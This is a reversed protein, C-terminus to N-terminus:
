DRRGGVSLPRLVRVNDKQYVTDFRQGNIADLLPDSGWVVVVDIAKMHDDVIQQWRSARRNALAPGEAMAIREFDSSTPHAIDPRFQVPFYYHRTEYNNWVINGTGIGLLNDAHLLPNSRFRPNMDVLLTAVRQNTGIADRAAIIAGATRRSTLAYDWVIASQVSLALVLAAAILRGSWGRADLNAIPVLAVLGLLVVRQQLFEGHIAGLSDPGAIGGILLLAALWAWGIRESPGQSPQSRRRRIAAYWMLTFGLMLLTAPKFLGSWAADDLTTLPIVRGVTLTIPDVHAMQVAWAAPSLPNALHDWVPQMPGGAKSLSRYLLGLPVLPSLAALTRVFRVGRQGGPTTLALVILGL